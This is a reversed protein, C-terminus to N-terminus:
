EEDKFKRELIEKDQYIISNYKNEKLELNLKKMTEPDQECLIELMSRNPSFLGDELADIHMSKSFKLIKYEPKHYSGKSEFAIAPSLIITYPRAEKKLNVRGVEKFLQSFNPKKNSKSGIKQVFEAYKLIGLHYTSFSKYDHTVASMNPTLSQNTYKDGVLLLQGELEKLDDFELNNEALKIPADKILISKNKAMKNM